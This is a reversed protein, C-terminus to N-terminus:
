RARVTFVKSAPAVTPSGCKVVLKHAGKALRPLPLVLRGRNAVTTLGQALTRRGQTITVRGTPATTASLPRASAAGAGSVASLTALAASLGTAVRARSAWMTSMDDVLEDIAV